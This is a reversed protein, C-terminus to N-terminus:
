LMSESAVEVHKSGTYGRMNGGQQRTFVLMKTETLQGGGDREGRSRVWAERCSGETEEPHVEFIIVPIEKVM